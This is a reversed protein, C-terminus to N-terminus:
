MRLAMLSTWVFRTTPPASATATRSRKRRLALLVSMTPTAMGELTMPVKMTNSARPRVSLTTLRAPILKATPITISLEITTSSFM